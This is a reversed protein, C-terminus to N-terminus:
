FEEKNDQLAERIDQIQSCIKGLSNKAFDLDFELGDLLTEIENKKDKDM